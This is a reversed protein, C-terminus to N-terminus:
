NRDEEEEPLAQQDRQESMRTSIHTSLADDIIMIQLSLDVLWNADAECFLLTAFRIRCKYLFIDRGDGEM